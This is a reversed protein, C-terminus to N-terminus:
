EVVSKGWTVSDCVVLENAVVVRSCYTVDCVLSGEGEGNGVNDLVSGDLSNVEVKASEVTLSIAVSLENVVISCDECDVVESFLSGEEVNNGVEDLVSVDLSNVEVRGSVVIEECVVSDVIPSIIVLLVNIGVVLETASVVKSCDEPVVGEVVSDCCGEVSELVSSDLSSNM